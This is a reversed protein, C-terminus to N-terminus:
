TSRPVADFIGPAVVPGRSETLLTHSIWDRGPRSMDSQHSVKLAPWCVEHLGHDLKVVNVNKWDNDGTYNRPVKRTIRPRPYIGASDM